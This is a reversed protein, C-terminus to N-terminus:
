IQAVSAVGRIVAQPSEPNRYTGQRCVLVLALGLATQNIRDRDYDDLLQTIKNNRELYTELCVCCYKVM